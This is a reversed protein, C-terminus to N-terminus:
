PSVELRGVYVAGEGDDYAISAGDPSFSPRRETIRDTATVPSIRASALDYVYLDSAVFDHGDDETREFALRKSDPSWAPATGRGVHILAGTSRTYVYIGTTLGLFAVRDGDPAIVAGYFRDGSGVRVLQGNKGSAYMRDDRSFAVPQTAAAASIAGDREIVLSQQIGSRTATYSIVGGAIFRADVGAGEDSTLKAVGGSLAALYLGRLKPGTVLLAAGDPAFRPALYGGRAVQRVDVVREGRAAGAVALVGAVLAM